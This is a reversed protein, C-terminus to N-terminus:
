ELAFIGYKIRLRNFKDTMPKNIFFLLIGTTIGHILNFSMGSRVFFLLLFPPSFYRLQKFLTDDQVFNNYIMGMSMCGLLPSVDLIACVGCFAFLTAVSIILRNDSSRKTPMLWKLILGFLGGLLLVGVNTLVPTFVSALSVKGTGAASAVSIAIGYAILGVVNDIAVVQLLTDVFDGKAGTQRITMLTSASATSSALAALVIAFTLELKLIFYSVFFILLAALCAEFLSIVIVKGGNKKLSSFRFFEGTGFAIFALAIDAIFDMGDVMSAPVLKLCNPGILIGALIYATVNPLRMIKTIRTMAFGCFLILSVSIIVSAVSSSSQIKDYLFGLM